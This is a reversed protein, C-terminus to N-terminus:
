PLKFPKKKKLPSKSLGEKEREAQYNPLLSMNKVSDQNMQKGYIKMKLGLEKGPGPKLNSNSISSREKGLIMEIKSKIVSSNKAKIKDKQSRLIQNYKNIEAEIKMKESKMFNQRDIEIVIPKKLIPLSESGNRDRVM